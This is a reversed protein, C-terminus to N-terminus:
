GDLPFVGESILSARLAIYDPDNIALVAITARGCPTSGVILAGVCSFHDRWAQQRPNFLQAIQGTVPDIGVLNPGKHSNCHLCCLALNEPTSQGGHQRAIIHDVSFRLRQINQPMRCYECMGNARRRVELILTTDM